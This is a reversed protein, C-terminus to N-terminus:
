QYKIYTMDAEGLGGPCPTKMIKVESIFFSLHLSILYSAQPCDAESHYICSYFLDSQVESNLREM